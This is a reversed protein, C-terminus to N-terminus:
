KAAVKVTVIGWAPAKDKEVFSLPSFRWSQLFRMARLDIEPYGSSFLLKPNYVIGDTSVLFKLKVRYEETDDYLGRPVTLERPRFIIEREAAPGEIASPALKAGTIEYPMTMVEDILRPLEKTDRAYGHTSFAFRGAAIDPVSEKLIKREPGKPKLYVNDLFLASRAYITETHPISEEVMLDFATKELIPGLFAVEQYLNSTQVNPPMVVGIVSM